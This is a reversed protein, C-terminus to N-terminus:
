VLNVQITRKQFTYPERMMEVGSTVIDYLNSCLIHRNM